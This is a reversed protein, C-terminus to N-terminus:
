LVELRSCALFINYAFTKPINAYGNDSDDDDDDDNNNNPLLLRALVLNIDVATMSTM